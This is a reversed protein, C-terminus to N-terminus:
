NDFQDVGVASTPKNHLISPHHDAGVKLVVRRARSTVDLPVIPGLLHAFSVLLAFAMGAPKVCNPLWHAGDILSCFGM